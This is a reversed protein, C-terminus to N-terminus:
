ESLGAKQLGDLLRDLAESHAYPSTAIVDRLSLNPKLKRGMALAQAAESTHGLQAHAAALQLWAGYEKQPINGLAAIAEDYRELDILIAGRIWWFWHPPFKSRQLADDIASLANEPQGAYQMAAARDARIEADVPNLDVARNFHM